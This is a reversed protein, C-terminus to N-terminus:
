EAKPTQRPRPFLVWDYGEGPALRKQPKGFIQQHFQKEDPARGGDDQLDNGVAYVVPRGDLLRYRLAQGTFRDMPAEPLYKPVLQELSAPWEGHKRRYLELAIATLTGKRVQCLREAAVDVNEIAPFFLVPISFAPVLDGAQPKAWQRNREILTEYPSPETWTYFPGGRRLELESFLRDMLESSERRGMARLMAMPGVMAWAARGSGDHDAALWDNASWQALLKLGEPTLTGDGRGDDTYCRQLLDDLMWREGRLDFKITGGGYFMGLRHAIEIWQDDTLLESADELTDRIVAMTMQVIATAVLDEIVVFGRTQEAVSISSLLDRAARNGDGDAAAVMADATLLRAFTRMEQVQPLLTEVVPMDRDLDANPSDEPDNYIIGREPKAAAQHILELAAQNEEVFTQMQKWALSDREVRNTESTWWGENWDESQGKELKPYPKRAKLAQRYLPWAWKEEPIAKTQENLEQVYHRKITPRSLFFRATLGLYMLLLVGVGLLSYRWAQWWASRCRLRSRRILRSAQRADGFRERLEAASAGAELGDRFHGALERAVDIQEARWLRTGRVVAQTLTALEAPLQAQAIADGVTLRPAVRGRVLEGLPTKALRWLMAPRSEPSSSDPIPLTDDTM